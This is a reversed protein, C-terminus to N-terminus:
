EGLLREAEAPNAEALNLREELSMDAWSKTQNTDGTEFDRGQSKFKEESKQATIEEVLTHLNELNAKRSDLDDGSIFKSFSSPIKKEELLKITEFDLERRNIEAKMREVENIKEQLIEEKSMTKTREDNLRKELDKKENTYKTRVKDIESQILRQFEPSNMVNNLDLEQKNDKDKNELEDLKADFEEQTITGAELLKLLEEKNM